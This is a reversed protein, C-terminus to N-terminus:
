PVDQIKMGATMSPNAKVFEVFQQFAAMCCPRARAPYFHLETGKSESFLFADGCVPCKNSECARSM